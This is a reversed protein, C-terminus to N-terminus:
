SLRYFWLGSERYYSGVEYFAHLDMVSYCVGSHRMISACVRDALMFAGYGDVWVGSM